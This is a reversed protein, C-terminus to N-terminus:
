PYVTFCNWGGFGLVYVSVCRQFSGDPAVPGDCQSGGNGWIVAGGCPQTPPRPLEAAVVAVVGTALLFFVLMSLLTAVTLLVGLIIQKTSFHTRM